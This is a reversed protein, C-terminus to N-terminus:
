CCHSLISVLTTVERVKRIFPYAKKNIELFKEMRSVSFFIKEGRDNFGAPTNIDPFKGGQGIILDQRNM